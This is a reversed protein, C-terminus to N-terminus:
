LVKMSKELGAADAREPICFGSSYIVLLFLSVMTVELCGVMAHHDKDHPM